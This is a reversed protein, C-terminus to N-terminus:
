ADTAVDVSRSRQYLKEVSVHALGPPAASLMVAGVAPTITTSAEAM